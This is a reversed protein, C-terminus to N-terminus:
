FSWSVSGGTPGIAITYTFAVERRRPVQRKGVVVMPIGAALLACGGILGVFGAVRRAEESDSQPLSGSMNGLVELLGFGIGGSGVVLAVIGVAMLGPSNMEGGSEDDCKKEERNLFCKGDSECEESQRCDQRSTAICEGDLFTCRGDELCYETDRCAPSVICKGGSPWCWDRKACMTSPICDAESAAICVSGTLTCLGAM